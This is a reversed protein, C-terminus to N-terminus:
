PMATGAVPGVVTGGVSRHRRAEQDTADTSARDRVLYSAVEGNSYIRNVGPQGDLRDFGTATYRLGDWLGRERRIDGQSVLLYQPEQYYAPLTGRNFTGLPVGEGVSPSADSTSGVTGYLADVYRDPGSRVGIYPNDTGHEFTYEFGAMEAESVHQTPQYIYPSAYVVPVSLLLAAALVVVLGAGVARTSYRGALFTAGRVLAVGGLITVLMVIFGVQRYHQRTVGSLFYVLFLAGLPIASATVYQVFSEGADGTTRWGRLCYLALGGALLLFVTTVLFLKLFLEGISGGVQALSSSQHAIAGGPDGEGALLRGVIAELAGTARVHRPLWLLVLAGLLLTQAYLPNPRVTRSHDVWRLAFTVFSVTAFLLLLSVAQQPHVLLFSASALALMMGWASARGWVTREAVPLRLYRFLLYLVFPLFLIAQTTPHAMLHVSVNNIPLLLLASFVGVPVTWRRDTFQRMCLPVFVFPVVAYAFVMLMLARRAPVGAGEGVFVSVLHGAPYMFGLPDLRGAVIDKVWGLHTLADGSGFFYYSRLLPLGVLAVGAVAALGVAVARIGPPIAPLLSLAAAVLLALALGVWFALPTGAYISLEYGRAPTQYAALMGGALAFFGFALTLKALLTRNRDTTWNTRGLRTSAIHTTM